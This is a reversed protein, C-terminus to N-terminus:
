LEKGAVRYGLLNSMEMHGNFASLAYQLAVRHGAEDLLYPHIRAGGRIYGDVLLAEPVVDFAGGTHGALGRAASVATFFVIVDRMIGINKLWQEYQQDTLTEASLDLTLPVYGSTDIPFDRNPM